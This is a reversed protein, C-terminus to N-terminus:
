MLEVQELEGESFFDGRAIHMLEHQIAKQQCRYDLRANIYVNFFGDRDMITVGNVRCPLDIYRICYSM